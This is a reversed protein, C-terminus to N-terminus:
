RKKQSEMVNKGTKQNEGSQFVTKQKRCVNELKGTKQPEFLENKKNRACKEKWNEAPYLEKKWIEVIKNLTKRSGAM